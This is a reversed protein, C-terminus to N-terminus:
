VGIFVHRLAHNPRSEGVHARSYRFLHSLRGGKRHGNHSATANRQLVVSYMSYIWMPLPMKSAIGIWLALGDMLVVSTTREPVPNTPLCRNKTQRNAEVTRGREVGQIPFLLPPYLFLFHPRSSHASSSCQLIPLACTPINDLLSSLRQRLGVPM